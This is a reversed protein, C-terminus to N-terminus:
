VHSLLGQRRRGTFVVRAGLTEYARHGPEAKCVYDLSLLVLRGYQSSDREWLRDGYREIFQERTSCQDPQFVHLTAKYQDKARKVLDLTEDFHHLTDIFILPVGKGALMDMIVMGTAGFATTQFVGTTFHTLAWAIIEQPSKNELTQNFVAAKAQFDNIQSM